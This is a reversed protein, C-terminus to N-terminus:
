PCARARAHWGRGAEIEPRPYLERRHHLASGVFLPCARLQQALEIEVIVDDAHREEGM